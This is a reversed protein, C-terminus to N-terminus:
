DPIIWFTGLRRTARRLWRGSATSSAPERRDHPSPQVWLGLPIRGSFDRLALYQEAAGSEFAIIVDPDARHLIRRVRLYHAVSRQWGAPQSSLAHARFGAVEASTRADSEADVASVHVLDVAHGRRAMERALPATPGAGDLLLWAIQM